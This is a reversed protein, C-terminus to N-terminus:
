ASCSTRLHTVLGSGTESESCILLCLPRRNTDDRRGDAGGKHAHTHPPPSKPPYATCLAAFEALFWFDGVEREPSAASWGSPGGGGGGGQLASPEGGLRGEGGAGQGGKCPQHSGM